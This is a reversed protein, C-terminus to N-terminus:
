ALKLPPLEASAAQELWTKCHLPRLQMNHPKECNEMQLASQLCKNMTEHNSQKRVRVIDSNM